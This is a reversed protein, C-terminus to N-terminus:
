LTVNLGFTYVRLPPIVGASLNEPDLGDFKSITLLNQGQAYVSLNKLHLKKILEPNFSYRLSANQLRAYTANSYAGTSGVLLTQRFYSFLSTSIKPIDTVDGPNQWRRLWQTSGNQGYIGFPFTTQGLFNKAQRSTFNFSFDLTLRKYTFANQFGGYFKPALDIFETKDAPLLGSQFDSTEGKANTFSYYGTEPNVGNYKYLLIGTVPQNLVYNSALDTQTPIRLLKSKPMSVNLRTTWSFNGSKINTSNIGLELGSTRILADSNLAYNTYGTVSSLPQGLLQNSARNYYYSLDTTIRDKFFGMDLGIESNFNREWNLIPNPLSAPALGVKGDYTGGIVTYTGLYSYDPVADGGVVGSSLRLKGFSLFPLNNKVFGEESFIWAVAASGFNGFRRGPGFKTSGDRRTNIDIIYKKDWIFNIIGYLGISRYETLNYKTTVSAGASPNDLLGDSPFGTGTIEDLYNVRNSIEGGMKLSFEGKGGLLTKYEGYPSITISRTNYHNFIGVTKNPAQTDAPNFATTPYAIMEKGTIDNYAFISRLTLKDIPHYVLTANALLNNTTNEYQRMINATTQSSNLDAGISAWDITGDARYPSPANPITLASGSFDFPVMNNKSSLYTATLSLNFKNDATSTNLAFRLSGDNNKGQHRQINGMDRLSGSILYTTNQSGGSYSLNLNSTVASNGMFEKRWDTYRDTPWAGNLDSDSKPVQLKDNALAERRLMLYEDTNLLPPTQGNFSLGSYVNVNFSQSASKAKKTTILIVGYAGSSGYIATADVDKLIDISEIDNPNIYNLGSGGQLFAKTSYTSNESLGLTGSPYRVGDVVVLPQTGQKDINLNTSGRMRVSFAGGPQGTAQQIFLGSVNGQLAELVNNVPNKEIDKATITTINGANFRKTTTGYATVQIQDLVNLSVKMEVTLPKQDGSLKVEFTEYGVYSFQLVAREDDIPLLFEGTRNTSTQNKPNSKERVVVGAFPLRGETLVKGSAIKIPKAEPGKLEVAKAQIVIINNEIKFGLPQGKLCEELAEKLEMNKITVSIKKTNLQLQDPYFFDFDTQRRIEKFVKDLPMERFNLTVHQAFSNASVQLIATTLLLIIIKMVRLITPTCGIRWCLKKTYFHM